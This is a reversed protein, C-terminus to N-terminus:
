RFIDLAFSSAAYNAFAALWVFGRLKDISTSSSFLSPLGLIARSTTKSRPKCEPATQGHNLAIM